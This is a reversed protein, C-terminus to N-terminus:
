HPNPSLLLLLSCGAQYSDCSDPLVAIAVVIPSVLCGGLRITVYGVECQDVDGSEYRELVM